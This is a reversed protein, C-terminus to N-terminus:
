QGLRVGAAFGIQLVVLEVLGRANMLAGVIGAQRWSLGSARSALSAGGIKGASALVVMGCINALGSIGISRFNIVLGPALFYAPLLVSQILPRIKSLTAKRRELGMKQGCAIGCVVAGVIPQLGLASSAAASLTALALLGPIDAALGAATNDRYRWWVGVLPRVVFLLVGLLAVSGLITTLLSGGGRDASVLTLVVALLLWGALDQIVACALAAHALRLSAMGRDAIIRALVPVATISFALGVFLAFPVEGIGRAAAVGDAHYLVVGLPLALLFPTLLSATSVAAILRSRLRVAVLDIDLGLSFDYCVVGVQGLVSIATRTSPTFLQMSPDGPLAGLLTPGLLIGGLIEGIVAPQGIRRFASGMAAATILIVALGLMLNSIM